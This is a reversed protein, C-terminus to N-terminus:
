RVRDRWGMAAKAIDLLAADLDGNLTRARALKKLATALVAPGAPGISRLERMEAVTLKRQEGTIASAQTIMEATAVEAKQEAREARHEARYASATAHVVEARLADVLRRAAEQAQAADRAADVAQATDARAQALQSAYEQANAIEHEAGAERIVDLVTRLQDRDRIAADLQDALARRATLADALKAALRETARTDAVRVTKTKVKTKTIAKPRAELKVEAAEARSLARDLRAEARALRESLEKHKESPVLVRHERVNRIPAHLGSPRRNAPGPRNVALGAAQRLESWTGFKRIANLSPWASGDARGAYYRDILDQRDAWKATAPNFASSPFSTGYTAAYERLAAIISERTHVGIRRGDATQAFPTM